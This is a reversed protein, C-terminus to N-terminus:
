KKEGEIKRERERAVSNGDRTSVRKEGARVRTRAYTPPPPINRGGGGSGIEKRERGEM